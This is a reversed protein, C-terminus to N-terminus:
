FNRFWAKTFELFQLAQPSLVKNKNWAIVLTRYTKEKLKIIKYQDSHQLKFLNEPMLSIGKNKSIMYRLAQYDATEFVVGPTFGGERRCYEDTFDRLNISKYYAVYPYDSLSKISVENYKCLPNEKSVVLVIENDMLKEYNFSEMNDFLQMFTFDYSNQTNTSMQNVSSVFIDRTSTLFDATLMSIFRNGAQIYISINSQIPMKFHSIGEDISTLASNIKNYFYKGDANLSIKKGNRDFLKVGLEQELKSITKSISPQPVLNKQAVKSFNELEAADRFYRLQLLEM